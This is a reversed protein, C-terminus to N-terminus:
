PQFLDTRERLAAAIPEDAPALKYRGLDRPDVWEIADHATL